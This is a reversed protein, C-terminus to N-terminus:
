PLTNAKMSESLLPGLFDRANPSAMLQRFLTELSTRIQTRQRQTLQRKSSRDDPGSM